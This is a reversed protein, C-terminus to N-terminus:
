DIRFHINLNIILHEFYSAFASDTNSQNENADEDDALRGKEKLQILLQM